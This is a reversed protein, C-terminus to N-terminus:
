DLLYVPDTVPRGTAVRHPRHTSGPHKQFAIAASHPKIDSEITTQRGCAFAVHRIRCNEFHQARHGLGVDGPFRLHEQREVRVADQELRKVFAALLQIVPRNVTDPASCQCVFGVVLQCLPLDVFHMGDLFYLSPAFFGAMGIPFIDFLAFTRLYPIIQGFYPFHHLLRDM